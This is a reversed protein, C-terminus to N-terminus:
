AASKKRGWRWLGLLGSGFFLLSGPLPVPRESAAMPIFCGDGGGYNTQLMGNANNWISSQEEIGTNPNIYRIWATEGPNIIRDNNADDFHFCKLTVYVGLGSGLLVEVDAGKVLEDYLFQWRPGSARETVWAPQPRGDPWTQPTTEGAYITRAPAQSPNEIYLNAGYYFNPIQTGFLDTRMYDSSGLTFATGIPDHHVLNNGYIASYRNQLYIFSNVAAIPGLYYNGGAGLDEVKLNGYSYNISIDYTVARAGAVPWVIMVLCALALWRLVKLRRM